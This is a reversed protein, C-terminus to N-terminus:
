GKTDRLETDMLLKLVTDRLETDGLETHQYTRTKWSRSTKGTKFGM